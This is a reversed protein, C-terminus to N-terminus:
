RIRGERAARMIEAENKEYEAQSMAGIQDKTWTPAAGTGAGSPGGDFNGAAPRPTGFLAAHAGRFAAVAKDLDAISGDDEVALAAFEPGTAVYDLADPMIGATALARRVESRRVMADSRKREEAQADRRAQAIAKEHETLQGARLAELEAQAAKAQREAERRATRESELARKGGDGLEQGDTAAPPPTQAAPQAPDSSQAATAAAAAPTAGATETM